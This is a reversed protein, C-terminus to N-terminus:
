RQKRFSGADRVSREAAQQELWDLFRRVAQRRERGAVCLALFSAGPVTVDPRHQVLLGREVSDAALTTSALIYGQGSIAAQLAYHEDEYQILRAVKLWHDCGAATCWQAWSAPCGSGGQWALDIIHDPGNAFDQYAPSVFVGFEEAMLNLQYLAAHRRASSRIAVDIGHHKELDVADNCMAIRVSHTPFQQYFNGLRPILWSAAFAPTTTVHIVQSAADPKFGEIIQALDGFSQHAQQYLLRGENTLSLGASSRDFLKTGIGSELQKIQLSVASPTVSLECGARKLSGLRAVAEFSRLANLPLRTFM